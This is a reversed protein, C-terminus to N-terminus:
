LSALSAAEFDQSDNFENLVQAAARIDTMAQLHEAPPTEQAVLGAACLLAVGGVMWTTIRAGM